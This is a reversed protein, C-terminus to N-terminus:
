VRPPEGRTAGGELQVPAGPIQRQHRALMPQREEDHVPQGFAGAVAILQEPPCGLDGLAM